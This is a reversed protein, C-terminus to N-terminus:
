RPPPGSGGPRRWLALPAQRGSHLRGRTAIGGLLVLADAITLSLTAQAALWWLALTNPSGSALIAAALLVWSSIQLRRAPLIM